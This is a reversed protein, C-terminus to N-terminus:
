GADLYLRSLPAHGAIECIVSCALLLPLFKDQAEDHAGHYHHDSAPDQIKEQLIEPLLLLATGKELQEFLVIVFRRIRQPAARISLRASVVRGLIEHVVPSGLAGVGVDTRKVDLSA